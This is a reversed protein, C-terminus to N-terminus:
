PGAGAVRVRRRHGEALAARIAVVAARPHTGRRLEYAPLRALRKAFGAWGPQQAAYRQSTALRRLVSAKGLPTLLAQAGAQKPSLFVLARVPVPAAALRYHAARLDIEFKEVGSRRRILSAHRLLVARSSADLHRLSQRRLHLFSAVGTALLGKPRMMVSDEALFDLGALLCHLTATSKGAGSPGMLLVGGGREGVCAAHLPMLRRARAALTYVAFELLEYRVHYPFRLLERGVAVLASRRQPSVAVFSSGGVAGCLLGAGCLAAVPPPAAKAGHPEPLLVLRVSCRPARPMRHPPLAAYASKAIRLLQPDDCQFRFEGGLLQARMQLRPRHREGFPDAAPESPVARPM